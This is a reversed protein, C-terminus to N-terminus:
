GTRFPPKTGLVKVVWDHRTRGLIDKILFFDIDTFDDFLVIAITHM